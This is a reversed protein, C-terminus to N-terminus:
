RSTILLLMPTIRNWTCMNTEVDLIDRSEGGREMRGRDFLDETATKSFDMWRKKRGFMREGERKRRNRMLISFFFFAHETHALLGGRETTPLSRKIYPPRVWPSFVGVNLACMSWLGVTNKQNKRTISLTASSCLLLPVGSPVSTISPLHLSSYGLSVRHKDPRNGPRGHQLMFLLLDNVGWHFLWWLWLLVQINNLSISKPSVWYYDLPPPHRCLSRAENWSDGKELFFKECSNERRGATGRQTDKDSGM